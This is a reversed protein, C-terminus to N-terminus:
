APVGVREDADAVADGWSHGDDQASQVQRVWSSNLAEPAVLDELEDIIVAMGWSVNTNWGLLDVARLRERSVGLLMLAEGVICGCRNRANPTYDCSSQDDNNDYVFDPETAAVQRIAEILQKLTIMRM